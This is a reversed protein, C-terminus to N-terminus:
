WQQATSHHGAVNPYIRGIGLGVMAKRRKPQYSAPPKRQRRAAHKAHAVWRNAAPRGGGAVAWGSCQVCPRLLCFFSLVMIHAACVMARFQGGGKTRGPVYVAPTREKKKGGQPDEAGCAVLVVTTRSFTQGVVVDSNQSCPVLFTCSSGHDGIIANPSFSFTFSTGARGSGNAGAM